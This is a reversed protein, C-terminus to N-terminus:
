NIIIDVKLNDEFGSMLIPYKYMNSLVFFVKDWEVDDSYEFFLGLKHYIEEQDLIIKSIEKLLNNMDKRISPSFDNLEFKLIAIINEKKIARILRIPKDNKIPNYIIGKAGNEASRLGFYYSNNSDAIINFDNSYKKLIQWDEDKEITILNFFDNTLSELNTKIAKQKKWINKKM